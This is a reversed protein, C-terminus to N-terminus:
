FTTAVAKEILWGHGQKALTIDLQLPWRGQMGWINATNWAQGIIRARNGNITPRVSVEDIKQYRMQGSRIHELWEARPQVYGTMHTLTFGPALMKDLTATDAAAMARNFNRYVAALQAQEATQTHNQPNVSIGKPAPVAAAPLTCLLAAAILVSLTRPM